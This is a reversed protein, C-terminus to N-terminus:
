ILMLAAHLVCLILAAHVACVMITLKVPETPLGMVKSKGIESCAALAM